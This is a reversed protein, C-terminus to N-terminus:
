AQDEDLGDDVSARGRIRELEDPTVLVARAKSGEAPGVIGRQELLDMLRGARAFGIRLKRQLMSTSGMQSKVVLEMAQDLLEDDEAVASPKGEESSFIVSDLYEPRSVQRRWHAVIKRVEDESIYCGQIRRPVGSTATLLLMDGMGVLDEAGGTDLIVRSDVQSGVKFAIRSPINAKIVGTIVNTSPRQTAVVLHIGVARAMQAIRMISDEVDRAAVMMLDNLEDVVVVVFSLPTHEFTEGRLEGGLEFVARNYSGIDRAGLEALKAYRLEMERVVWGLAEAARKPETVVRTLLHPIGDYAGLEVRKPDVLLLRVQEPGNRLILSSVLANITSSKGGGTTGAILLHPMEALNVFVPKGAIDKGLACELPHGLRSGYPVLVDGLTVLRRERNPIEIGIASKGPIPAQIRVSEAALAYAIDDALAKVKAVKVGPALEVEFRTVTPGVTVGALSAGVDFQALTDLLVKGTEDIGQKSVKADSTKRLLELPPLSFRTPPVLAAQESSLGLRLQSVQGSAAKGGGLVAAEQKGVALSRSRPEPGATVGPTGHHGVRDAPKPSHEEVSATSEESARTRAGGDGGPRDVAAPSPAGARLEEDGGSDGSADGKAAGIEGPRRTGMWSELRRVLRAAGEWFPIRAGLGVELVLAGSLVVLSAPRGLLGVLLESLEAGVRGGTLWSDGSTGLTEAFAAVTVLVAVAILSTRLPKGANRLLEIAALAMLFPFFVGVSGAIDNVGQQVFSDIRGTPPIWLLAGLVMSALALLLGWFSRPLSLVARSASEVANKIRAVFGAQGRSRKRERPRGVARKGTSKSLGASRSPRSRASRGAPKAPKYSTRAM